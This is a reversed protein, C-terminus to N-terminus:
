AGMLYGRTPKEVFASLAKKLERLTTYEGDNYIGRGYNVKIYAKQWRKGQLTAIVRSKVSLVTDVVLKDKQWAKLQIWLRIKM